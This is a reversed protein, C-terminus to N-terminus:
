LRIVLGHLPPALVPHGCCTQARSSLCHYGFINNPKKLSFNKQAEEQSFDASYLILYWFATYMCNGIKQQKKKALCIIVFMM